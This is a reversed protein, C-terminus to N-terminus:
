ENISGSIDGYVSASSLYLSQNCNYNDSLLWKNLNGNNELLANSDKWVFLTSNCNLKYNTIESRNYFKVLSKTLEFDRHNSVCIISKGERAIDSIISKTIQGYGFVALDFNLRQM